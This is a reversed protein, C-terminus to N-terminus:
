KTSDLAILGLRFAWQQRDMMTNTAPGFEVLDIRLTEVDYDMAAILTVATQPPMNKVDLVYKHKYNIVEKIEM